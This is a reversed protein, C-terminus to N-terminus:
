EKKRRMEVVSEKEKMEIKKKGEMKKFTYMGILYEFYIYIYVGNLLKPLIDKALKNDCRYFIRQKM